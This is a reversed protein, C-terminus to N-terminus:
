EDFVIILKYPLVLYNLFYNKQPLLMVLKLFADNIATAIETAEAGGTNACPPSAASSSSTTIM